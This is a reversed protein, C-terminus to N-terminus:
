VRVAIMARLSIRACQRGFVTGNCGSGLCIVITYVSAKKESPLM